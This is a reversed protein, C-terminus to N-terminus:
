DKTKEKKSTAKAEQALTKAKSKAGELISCLTTGEMEDFQISSIRYGSQISLYCRCFADVIDLKNSQKNSQRYEAVENCPANLRLFLSSALKFLKTLKLKGENDVGNKKLAALDKLIMEALARISHHKVSPIFGKYPGVLLSQKSHMGPDGGKLAASASYFSALDQGSTATWNLLAEIKDKLGCEQM